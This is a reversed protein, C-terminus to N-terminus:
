ADAGEGAAPYLLMADGFSFFRYEERVAVEYARRITEVGAFAMVLALLTSRPLHFNTIMVDVARFRHGPTIFVESWGAAPATAGQGPESRAYVTELVRVATTGVAIVRRGEKRARDIAELSEVPISYAESHISHEEVVAETVPRFTDLGVHLTVGATVVGGAEVTRLLEETFHLGATPAAASGWKEAYVTQYDDNRGLPAQIYPPLPMSGHAETIRHAAQGPPLGLTFRGDGLDELVECRAGGELTVRVGKRIRRGPRLLVEWREGSIEDGEPSEKDARLFLIEVGGGTEKRGAVRAAMVRSDNLVLVDGERLYSPLDRFRRHELKERAPDVVLLRGADRPRVPRQAILGPPLEFDLEELRM